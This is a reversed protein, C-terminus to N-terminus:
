VTAPAGVAPLVESAFLDLTALSAEVPLDGFAVSAVLYNAGTEDFYREVLAAATAPSGVIAKDRAIATDLDPAQAPLAGHQTWLRSMSAYWAAYAPRARRRAEADTEAVVLRKVAGMLLPPAGPPRPALHERYLAFADRLRAHDGGSLLNVGDRALRVVSEPSSAGYWLPPRRGRFPRVAPDVPPVTVHDGAARLPRGDLGDRLFRFAEEFHPRAAEPAVGFFAMEYPSGGPGVGVDLRGRCLHDLMCIEELLRLPHYLPLCFVMAGLRIRRTRQSAAALFVAPSPALGLPTGHHEALHYCHFPLADARELLALREEFTDAAPGPKQDLHDFLGFRPPVTTM